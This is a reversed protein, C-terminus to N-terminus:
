TEPGSVEDTCIDDSTSTRLEGEIVGGVKPLRKLHIIAEEYPVEQFWSEEIRCDKEETAERKNERM